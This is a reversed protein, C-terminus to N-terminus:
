ENKNTIIKPPNEDLKNQCLSTINSLAIKIEIITYKVVLFLLLASVSNIFDRSPSFAKWEILRKDTLKIIEPMSSM